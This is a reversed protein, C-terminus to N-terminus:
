DHEGNLIQYETNNLNEDERTVSPPISKKERISFVGITLLM